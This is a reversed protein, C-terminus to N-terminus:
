PLMSVRFLREIGLLNEKSVVGNEGQSLQQLQQELDHVQQYLDSNNQNEQDLRQGLDRVQQYLDSNNLQQQQLLQGLDKVQRRQHHLQQELDQM